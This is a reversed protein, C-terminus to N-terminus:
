DRFGFKLKERLLAFYDRSPSSILQLCNKKSRRVLVRDGANLPVMEQGDLTLLVTGPKHALCMEIESEDSVVLPRLTLSHPCIPTMVLAPVDPDLIPGGSALSYATSGTPTSVIVGDSRVLTVLQGNIKIEIGIIRSVTGRSLVADNVAVGEFIKKGDRILAVDLMSRKSLSVPKGTLIRDTFELAESAKVETLFGLQGMNIGMIPVSKGRTLRAISIYTGDGGFVLIIDCHKALQDKPVVRVKRTKKPLGTLQLLQQAAAENEHDLVVMAHRELVFQAVELALRAAEEQRRKIVIGVRKASVRTSKQM